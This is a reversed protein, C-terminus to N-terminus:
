DMAGPTDCLCRIVEKPPGESTQQGNDPDLSAATYSVCMAHTKKRKERQEQQSHTQAPLNGGRGHRIIWIKITMTRHKQRSTLQAVQKGQQPLWACGAFPCQSHAADVLGASHKMAGQLTAAKTSPKLPAALGLSTRLQTLILWAPRTTEEVQQAEEKKGKCEGYRCKGCASGM